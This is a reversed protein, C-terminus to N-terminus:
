ATQKEEPYLKENIDDLVKQFNGQFIKNLRNFGGQAAFEGRDFDERDVVTQAVLQKEIRQLWQRQVATWERAAYIRALADRIRKEHSILPDGLAQRRIFSIIDAAIDENTWDEWAVRLNRETFGAQDLAFKLEKLAQRTLARPRQCVIALAPIKNMNNIIFERFANLYDEPKEAKGYGRQHSHLEDKHHSILQKKPRYRNEDLFSLLNRKGALKKRCEGPDGIDLSDLFQKLTQGGALAAWEAQTKEDLGHLLRQFKALIQELQKKLTWPKPNDEFLQDLEAVLEGLTTSPDAAVAKMNSVPELAEYLAVADFINFHDKYIRDCRRTARGLMQEFLIRSRVRRLFVLNCIEPVDIGTTLLDVTVAINPLRENKFRRIASEPRDISGTIKLIADDLTPVGSAEFEDKLIGVVLDAHDDSSAFVLTKGEGDPNLYKVLDKAVTRNFNETLVLKNFHEIELKVEDPIDEINTIQGTAPDYVPITDGKAWKIGEKALRTILQHPPEHDVLWGDIVAERYTYTFVPKGFIETTHPAPTATLAIKVADFYDIVRRYKSLYENQDRYLVEEESLERDLTYGRHAEDVIICDYQGVSPVERASSPYMIAHMLGQVTAINVKTTSEIVSHDVEKLDYIQDFTKLEELRTEKFKDAAQEGLSTRDVVFLIRRFREAKLLRYILGIAVRTKGTGTAMAILIQKSGKDLAAETKNVAKEQYDRLGLYEMTEKALKKHATPIDQSFLAVLDEPSYWGQLPRPHNTPSRTDLFWIGSKDKLQDLYPRANTAFLFPVRYQEWSKSIFRAQGDLKAGKSYRKSQELDSVVDKGMKKSEIFGIFDLATFLAYDAPGTETPWEAIAQNAAKLPRSGQSYRLAISDAQWGAVRLQFDIIVRTEEEALQLTNARRAAEKRALRRVTEPIASVRITKVVDDPNVAKIAAPPLHTGYAKTFLTALRYALKMVLAARMQVTQPASSEVREAGNLVRFFPLLMSPLFGRNSLTNLRAIQSNEAPERLGEFALIFQTISDGLLTLRKLTVLPENPLAKAAETLLVALSPCTSQLEQFASM